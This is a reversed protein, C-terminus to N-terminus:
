RRRARATCRRSRVSSTQPKSKTRPPIEPAHVVARSTQARPSTHRAYYIEMPSQVRPNMRTRRTTARSKKARSRTLCNNKRPQRATRSACLCAFRVSSTPNPRARSRSRSMPPQSDKRNIATADRLNRLSKDGDCGINMMESACKTYLAHACWRHNNLFPLRRKHHLISLM